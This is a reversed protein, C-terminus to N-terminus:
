FDIERLKDKYDPLLKAFHYYSGRPINISQLSKCEYFAWDGVNTVSNPINISQLSSCWSFARDGINTVSNPINISQLSNCRYFAKDGIHTVSNPINISQLSKCNDFTGKGINTVSDPINISQLSKCWSFAYDGIHTVSNPINISQLSECSYFAYDGITTVSDPINISQLSKCSYFAEDGIHTVSTPINISQLSECSDFASNGIHTVSNPIYFTDEEGYYGILTKKEKDYLADEVIEFKDSQCKIILNRCYSFPNNGINTVSDPINISQLSECSYFAYDGITTVSDPINIIQLSKCMWFAWDGITTVSDPINISQLSGCIWFASDGITTVSDPINFTKEKGYYGILTKKEKDYLADEIVEFKDSQCKIILNKCDMFPNNGIHTVSNPINISQLSECGSFAEDCIVKTGQRITYPTLRNPAKLLKKGDKSYKVGYEDEWAEALEEETAETSLVEEEEKKEPKAQSFLRFSVQALNKNSWAILFLGLLTSLETSATLSQLASLTKCHPLDNYDSAAFLLRDSAGYEQLLEPKLAIAKLSLAITALAFDDIHENFDNETRLPHRFDPSGLERSKEGQMTPVYMGDYDVLVLTGDRRVLINDPKLDGHAFPQALLWTALRSFQFSLMELTYSEHLHERLYNDLTVGEVWDMLLIPFETENTSQSSVYLEKELYKISTLFSSNVFELERAIKQYSEARGAQEKLFCKVAYLKKTQIDEMKFVVAFNGSSMIPEGREDKVPRLMNMKEFNDEAWLIAEKYESLLPYNM